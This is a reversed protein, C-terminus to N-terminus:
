PTEDLQLSQMYALLDETQQQSLNFVPMPNEEHGARMGEEMVAPLNHIEWRDALEVFAPADAVPSDNAQSVAHCDSCMEAALAAGREAEGLRDPVPVSNDGIRDSLILGGGIVLALLIGIIFIRNPM